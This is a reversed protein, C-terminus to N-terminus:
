PTVDKWYRVFTAERLRRGKAFDGDSLQTCSVFRFKKAEYDKILADISDTEDLTLKHTECALIM